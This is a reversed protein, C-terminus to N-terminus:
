LFYVTQLYQDRRHKKNGLLLYPLLLRHRNKRLHFHRLVLLLHYQALKTKKLLGVVLSRVLSAIIFGLILLLIAALVGGFSGIIKGLLNSFYEGISM